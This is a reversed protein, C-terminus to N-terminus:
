IDMGSSEGRQAMTQDFETGSDNKPDEAYWTETDPEIGFAGQRVELRDGLNNPDYEASATANNTQNFAWSDNWEGDTKNGDVNIASVSSALLLMVFLAIVICYGTKIYNKM